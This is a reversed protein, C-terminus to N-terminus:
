YDLLKPKTGPCASPTMDADELHGLQYWFEYFMEIELQTHWCVAPFCDVIPEHLWLFKWHLYLLASCNHVGRSLM